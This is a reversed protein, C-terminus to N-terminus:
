TATRADCFVCGVDVGCLGCTTTEAEWAWGQLCHALEDATPSGTRGGFRRCKLAAAACGAAIAAAVSDGRAVGLTYVGHLVDGASLTDVVKTPPPRLHRAGAIGTEVWVVGDAGLTVGIVIARPCRGRIQQLALAWMCYGSQATSVRGVDQPTLLSVLGPQSFLVHDAAAVLRGLIDLDPTTDADVVSVVGVLQAVGLLELAAAPSRPDVLLADYEAVVERPPWDRDIDTLRPSDALLPVRAYV